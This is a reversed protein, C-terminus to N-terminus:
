CSRAEVYDVLADAVRVAEDDTLRIQNRNNQTITLCHQRRAVHIPPRGPALDVRM